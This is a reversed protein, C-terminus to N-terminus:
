SFKFRDSVAQELLGTQMVRPLHHLMVSACGWNETLFYMILMGYACFGNFQTRITYYVYAFTLICNLAYTLDYCLLNPILSQVFPGQHSLHWVACLNSTDAIVALWLSWETNSIGITCRPSM